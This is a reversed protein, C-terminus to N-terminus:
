FINYVRVPSTEPLMNKPDTDILIKPFQSLFILTLIIVAIVTTKPREVSFGTLKSAM